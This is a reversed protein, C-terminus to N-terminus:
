GENTNWAFHLLYEPKVKSFVHEMSEYDFINCHLYSDSKKQSSIAVINFGSDTLPQIAEKGILGTAGTLLVTKGM